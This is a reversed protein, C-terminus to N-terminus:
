LSVAQSGDCELGSDPYNFFYGADNIDIIVVDVGTVSLTTTVLRLLGYFTEQLQPLLGAQLVHFRKM